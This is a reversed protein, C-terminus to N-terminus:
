WSWTSASQFPPKLIKFVIPKYVTIINNWRSRWPKSSVNMSMWNNFKLVCVVCPKIPDCIMVHAVVIVCCYLVVLIMLM